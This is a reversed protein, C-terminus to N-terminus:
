NLEHRRIDGAENSRGGGDIITGDNQAQNRHWESILWGALIESRRAWRQEADPSPQALTITMTFQGVREPRVRSLTDEM